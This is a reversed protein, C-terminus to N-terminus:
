VFRPFQNIGNNFFPVIRKSKIKVQYVYVTQEVAFLNVSVVIIRGTEHCKLNGYNVPQRCPFMMRIHDVDMIMLCGQNGKHDFMGVTILLQPINWGHKRDM